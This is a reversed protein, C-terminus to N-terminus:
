GNSLGCFQPTNQAARINTQKDLFEGPTQRGQELGLNQLAGADREVASETSAIAGNTRTLRAPLRRSLEARHGSALVPSGEDEPHNAGFV